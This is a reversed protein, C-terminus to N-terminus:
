GDESCLWFDTANSSRPTLTSEGPTRLLGSATRLQWSRLKSRVRGSSSTGCAMLKQIIVNMQTKRSSGANRCLSAQRSREESCHNEDRIESCFESQLVVIAM